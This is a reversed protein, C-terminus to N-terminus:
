GEGRGDPRAVGPMAAFAIRRMDELHRETAALSGASGTGESPRYGARWLEDIWQQAEEDEITLCPEATLHPEVFAFEVPRAVAVGQRGQDDVMWIQVRRRYASREARLETM